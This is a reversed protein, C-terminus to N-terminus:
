EKVKPIIVEKRLYYYDQKEYWPIKLINELIRLHVKVSDNTYMTINKLFYEM